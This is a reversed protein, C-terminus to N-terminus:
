YGQSENGSTSYKTPLKTLFFNSIGLAEPYQLRYSATCEGDSSCKKLTDM